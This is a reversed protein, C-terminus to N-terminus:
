GMRLLAFLIIGVVIYFYSVLKIIRYEKVNNQSKYRRGDYLLSLLAMFLFVMVTGTDFVDELLSLFAYLFGV